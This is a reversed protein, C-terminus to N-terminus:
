GDPSLFLNQYIRADFVVEIRRIRGQEVQAWNVVKVREKSSLQIHMILINCVDQGDVFAKVREVRQLIGMNMASYEMFADASDFHAIPSEYVFGVDALYGRAMEYDHRDIADLYADVVDTPQVILPGGLTALSAM